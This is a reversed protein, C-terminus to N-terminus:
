KAIIQINDSELQKEAEAVNITKKGRRVEEVDPANSRQRGGDFIADIEELTKGKTEVWFLVQSLIMLRQLCALTKSRVVIVLVIIDWSGNIIYMKWGINELAIPMIFVLLLRSWLKPGRM